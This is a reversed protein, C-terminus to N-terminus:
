LPPPPDAGQSWFKWQSCHKKVITPSSGASLRRCHQPRPRRCRTRDTRSRPHRRRRCSHHRSSAFSSPLVPGSAPCIDLLCGPQSFIVGEKIDPCKKYIKYYRSRVTQIIIDFLDQAIFNCIQVYKKTPVNPVCAIIWLEYRTFPQYFCTLARKYFIGM